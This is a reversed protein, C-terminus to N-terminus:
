VTNAEALRYSSLSYLVRFVKQIVPPHPFILSAGLFKDMAIGSFAAGTVPAVQLIIPGTGASERCQVGDTRLQTVGYFRSEGSPPQRHIIRVGDRFAPPVAHTADYEAQTHHILPSVGSPVASGTERYWIRLRSHPRFIFLDQKCYSVARALKAVSGLQDM